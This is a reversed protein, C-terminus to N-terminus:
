SVRPSEWPGYNARVWELWWLIGADKQVERVDDPANAQESRGGPSMFPGEVSELPGCQIWTSAKMYGNFEDIDHAANEIENAKMEDTYRGIRIYNYYGDQKCWSGWYGGDTPPNHPTGESQFWPKGQVKAGFHFCLDANGPPDSKENFGIICSSDAGHGADIMQEINFPSM